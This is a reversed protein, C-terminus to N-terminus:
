FRYYVGGMPEINNITVGTAPFQSSNNPAKILYDRVQARIGLHSTLGWDVGGGVNWAARIVERVGYLSAPASTINFGVGAVAFPQLKGYKLSAVYDGAINNDKIDLKTIPANCYFGCNTGNPAFTTNMLNFGYSLEVGVLPKFIDRVEVLGGPSNSPTELAGNGRSSSTLNEYGSVGVDFLGWPSQGQAAVAQRQAANTQGQQAAAGVPVALGMAILAALMWKMRM